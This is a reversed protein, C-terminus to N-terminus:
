PKWGLRTEWFAVKQRNAVQILQLFRWNEEMGQLLSGWHRLLLAKVQVQFGPLEIRVSKTGHKLCKEVILRSIEYHEPLSSEVLTIAQSLVTRNGELIGNVYEDVSYKKRRNKRLHIIVDPNVSPPQDVGKNVNLASKYGSDRDM